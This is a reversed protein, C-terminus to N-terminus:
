RATSTETAAEGRKVFLQFLKVPNLGRKTAKEGLFVFALKDGPQVLPHVNDFLRDLASSGWVAVLVQEGRSTPIMLEYLRSANPGVGERHGAYTGYVCQGPREFKATPPFGAYQESHRFEEPLGEVKGVEASQDIITAPAVTLRKTLSREDQITLAQNGTKGKDEKM